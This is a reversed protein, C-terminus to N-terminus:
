VLAPNKAIACLACVPPDSDGTQAKYCHFFYGKLLNKWDELDTLKLLDCFQNVFPAVRTFPLAGVL